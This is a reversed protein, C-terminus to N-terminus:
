EDALSPMPQALIDRLVAIQRKVKMLTGVMEAEKLDLELPLQGRRLEKLDAELRRRAGSITYEEEYLLRKLRQIVEIDKQHYIRQGGSRSKEPNLSPFESEWYRLVHAKIGTLDSAEAINLSLGDKPFM